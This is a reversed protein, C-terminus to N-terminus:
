GQLPGSDKKRCIGVSIAFSFSRSDLAGLPVFGGKKGLTVLDRM